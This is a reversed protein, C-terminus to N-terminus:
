NERGEEIHRTLILRIRKNVQTVQSVNPPSQLFLFRNMQQTALVIADFAFMYGM